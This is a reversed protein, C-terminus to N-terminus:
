RDSLRLNQIDSVFSAVDVFGDVTVWNGICTSYTNVLKQSGDSLKNFIQVEYDAKPLALKSSLIVVNGGKGGTYFSPVSLYNQYLYYINHSALFFASAFALVLKAEKFGNLYEYLVAFGAVANIIFMFFIRWNTQTHDEQFGNVENM